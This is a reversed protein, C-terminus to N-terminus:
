SGCWPLTFTLEEISLCLGRDKSLLSSSVRMLELCPSERNDLNLPTNTPSTGVTPDAGAMLLALAIEYHNECVAHYLATGERKGAAHNVQNLVALRSPGDLKDKADQLLM